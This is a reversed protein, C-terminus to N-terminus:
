LYHRLLEKIVTATNAALWSQDVDLSDQNLTHTLEFDRKSSKGSKYFQYMKNLSRLNQGYWQRRVFM